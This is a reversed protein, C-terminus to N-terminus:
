AAADLGHLVPLRFISGMSGRVAKDRFPDAGGKMTICGRRVPRRPRACCRASTAPIACAPPSWSWRCSAARLLDAETSRAAAAVRGRGAADGAREAAGARRRLLRSRRWRSCGNACRQQRRAAAVGGGRRGALGADLAEAVLRVGEALMLDLAGSAADRFRQIAPNKGSSIEKRPASMPPFVIAGRRSPHEGSAM